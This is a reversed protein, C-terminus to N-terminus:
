KGVGILGKVFWRQMLAIVLIPPLMSVVAAAMLLNWEPVQTADTPLFSAVGLVLTRMDERNTAVLPWLYDKWAGIFVLTGLAAFNTKSLPLLIDIFFRWPGAGDMRAAEVLEAPLTQYFQRFLFTGTASAILPLALGPYSDLLNITPLPLWQIGLWQLLSRVPGLLDSAVAYTPIIRVELPLLAGLVAFFIVSSYRSRFYVVAFATLASLTLKGIVVLTAVLLSNGLLRLLDLRRSVQQLNELLQDGPIVALGHAFLQPNSVTASCVAIYLPGLAFVLGLTLLLYAGANFLRNHEIM